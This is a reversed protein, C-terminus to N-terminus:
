DAADPTDKRTVIAHLQAIQAMFLAIFDISAPIPNGEADRALRAGIQRSVTRTTTTQGIVVGDEDLEDVEIEEEVDAYIPEREYVVFRRLDDSEDLREAINGVRMMQGPDDKMFFEYLDPFIQGLSFPDIQRIGDKVRETSAGKSLRGDGNIYAVVYGSTAASSSPVYVHGGDVGINTNVYLQTSDIQATRGGATIRDHSHTSPPYTTPKGTISGWTLSISGFLTDAYSKAQGLAWAVMDRTKNIARWGNFWREAGDMVTLGELAADTGEDGTYGEPM